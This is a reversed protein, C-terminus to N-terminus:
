GQSFVQSLAALPATRAGPYRSLEVLLNQAQVVSVGPVSSASFTHWRGSMAEAAWLALLVAHPARWERVARATLAMNGTRAARLAATVQAVDDPAADGGTVGGLALVRCRSVVTALPRSEAALVFRTEPGTEELVKLLMNQVHHSTGDLGIAVIRADGDPTLLWASERVQRADAASLDWKMLWGPVDAAASVLRWAGPGVVLTAPPLDAALQARVQDPTM